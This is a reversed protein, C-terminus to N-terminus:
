TGVTNAATFCRGAAPLADEEQGALTPEPRHARATCAARRSPARKKSGEPAKGSPASTRQAAEEDRRLSMEKMIHSEDRLRLSRFRVPEPDMFEGRENEKFGMLHESGDFRPQDPRGRCGEELLMRRELAVEAGAINVANPQDYSTLM